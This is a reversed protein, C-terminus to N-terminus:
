AMGNFALQSFTQSKLSFLVGWFSKGGDCIRVPKAKWYTAHEIYWQPFANVYIFREGKIVVGTYQFAYGDLKELWDGTICCLSAKLDLVQGLHEEMLSVEKGTPTFFETVSDPTARSCQHIMEPGQKKGLIVTHQPKFSSVQALLGQSLICAPFLLHFKLM